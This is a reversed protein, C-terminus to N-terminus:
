KIKIRRVTIGDYYTAFYLYEGDFVFDESAEISGSNTYDGIIHLTRESDTTINYEIIKKRYVAYICDNHTAIIYIPHKTDRIFSLDDKSYIETENWGTLYYSDTLLGGYDIDSYSYTEGTFKDIKLMSDGSTYDEYSLYIYEQDILVYSDSGNEEISFYQEDSSILDVKFIGTYDDVFYYVCGWKDLVNLEVEFSEKYNYISVLGDKNYLEIQDDWGLCRYLYGQFFGYSTVDGMDFEFQNIQQKTNVDVVLCMQGDFIYLVDNFVYYDLASNYGTYMEYIMESVQLRKNEAVTSSIFSSLVIIFAAVVFVIGVVFGSTSNSSRTYGIDRTRSKITINTKPKKRLRAQYEEESIFGKDRLSALENDRDRQEHDSGSHFEPPTENQAPPKIRENRKCAITIAGILPTLFLSFFFFKIFSCNKWKALGGVALALGLWFIILVWIIKM